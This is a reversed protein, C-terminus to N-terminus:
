ASQRESTPQTTGAIMHYRLHGDPGYVTVETWAGHEFRGMEIGDHDCNTISLVGKEFVDAECNSFEEDGGYVREQLDPGLIARRVIVRNYRREPVVQDRFREAGAKAMQFFDLTM